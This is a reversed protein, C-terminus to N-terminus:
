RLRAEASLSPKPPLAREFLLYEVQALIGGGLLWYGVAFKVHSFLPFAPYRWVHLAIAVLGIIGWSSVSLVWAHRAPTVDEGPPPVFRLLLERLVIHGLALLLVSRALVPPPLSCIFSCVLRAYVFTFLGVLVSGVHLLLRLRFPLRLALSPMM